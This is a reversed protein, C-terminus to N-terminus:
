VREVSLAVANGGGLCLTALGRKGGRAEMAHLLTTLIRAGSAGIPHGLAVAGGNVNTRAPDLKLEKGVACAASSFAENVEVLDFDDPKAGTKKGLNQVAYIPAMMVWKPETGGTAYGTIRALPKLGRRKAEVDSMVVLASAGDSIQSANGATVTGKEGFAARMKSLSEFTSDPRVGEDVDVVTVEGKRGKIEVPVIENKFAGSQQAAIARRHSEAAFQDQDQRSVSCREAVLDGTSGMHFDNYVDWLGDWVMSDLLKGHGLRLGDRAGPLLYPANTMSEQGGAVIVHADGARIAQAALAVSKLGSGCVKNITMSGVEVPIGAAIAAQRAPNQGLGAQLVTGFIVEEVDSPKIGAREVAAKIAIAGLQPAKFSALKGQLRGIPTRVASVIVAEPM